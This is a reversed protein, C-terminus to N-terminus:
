ASNDSRTTGTNYFLLVACVSRVEEMCPMHEGWGWMGEGGDWGGM